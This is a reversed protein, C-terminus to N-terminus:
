HLAIRLLLARSRGILVLRGDGGMGIRQKPIGLSRYAAIGVAVLLSAAVTAILIPDTM